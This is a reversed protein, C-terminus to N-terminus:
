IGKRTLIARLKRLARFIKVRVHNETIELFRGIESYSYGMKLHLYIIARDTEPLQAVEHWALKGDDEHEPREVIGGVADNYQSFRKLGRFYDICANRTITYLWAIREDTDAPVTSCRWVKLFVNQLIDDCVARNGTTWLIFNYLRKANNDYTKKFEYEEV